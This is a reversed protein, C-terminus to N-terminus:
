SQDFTLIKPSNQETLVKNFEMIINLNNKFEEAVHRTWYKQYSLIPMKYGIKGHRKISIGRIINQVPPKLLQEAMFLCKIPIVAFLNSAGGNTIYQWNLLGSCLIQIGMYHNASSWKLINKQFEPDLGHIEIKDQRKIAKKIEDGRLKCELIM